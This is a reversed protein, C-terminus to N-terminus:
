FSTFIQTYYIVM